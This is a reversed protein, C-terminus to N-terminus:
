LLQSETKAPLTLHHFPSFLTQLRLLAINPLTAKQGDKNLLSLAPVPDNPQRTKRKKEEV